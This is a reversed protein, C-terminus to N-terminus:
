KLIIVQFEGDVLSYAHTNAPDKTSCETSVCYLYVRQQEPAPSDKRLDDFFNRLLSMIRMPPTVAPWDYVPKSKNTNAFEEHVLQAPEIQATENHKFESIHDANQFTQDDRSTLSRNIDNMPKLSSLSTHRRVPTAEEDLSLPSEFSDGIIIGQQQLVRSATVHIGEISSDEAM